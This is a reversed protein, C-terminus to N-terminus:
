DCISNQIRKEIKTPFEPGLQASEIRNFGQRHQNNIPFQQLNGRHKRETNTWNKKQRNEDYVSLESQYFEPKRCQLDAHMTLCLSM